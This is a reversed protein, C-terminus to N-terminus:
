FPVPSHFTMDLGTVPHKFKLQSAHLCLRPSPREPDYLADGVIPHGQHLMHVRLQHSRGTLPRLLVRSYANYPPNAGQIGETQSAVCHVRTQSPKGHIWDVKQLPRNPWDAILPADIETWKEQWSAPPCGHVLAEYQKYIHRDAFANGLAKQTSKNRAMLVLGSTAMDLRHVVLADPAWQLARIALCDQKDPGRGPVTLMGAPKELVLLSEDQFILLAM